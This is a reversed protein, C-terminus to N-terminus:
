KLLSSSRDANNLKRRGSRFISGFNTDYSVSLMVMNGNNKIYRDRKSPNVPSYSKTPYQLGKPQFPCMWAVGISWHKEPRYQFSL